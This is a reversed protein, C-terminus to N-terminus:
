NKSAQELNRSSAKRRAIAERSFMGPAVKEARRRLDAWQKDSITNPVSASGASAATV